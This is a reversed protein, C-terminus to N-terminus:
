YKFFFRSSSALLWDDIGAQKVPLIACL